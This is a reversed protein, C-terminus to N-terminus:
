EIKEFYAGVGMHVIGKEKPDLQSVISPYAAMKSAFNRITADVMFGDNMFLMIKYKNKDTPEWSIESILDFIDPPLKSLESVMRQLYQEDNFNNLLPGDGINNLNSTTIIMGNELVPHFELDSKIYGVINYEKIKLQVTQPLKREVEVTEIIPHSEMSDIISQKNMVWINSSTTLGSLKVVDEKKIVDNGNVEINKIYSLPSQLYIIISILLFFISLYFLLRRNAKKKRAEKLKPIRDEISVIKKKEM